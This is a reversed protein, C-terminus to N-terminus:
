KIKYRWWVTLRVEMDTKTWIELATWRWGLCPTMHVTSDSQGRTITGTVLHTWIFMFLEVLKQRVTLFTRLELLWTPGAVFFYCLLKSNLSLTWTLSQKCITSEISTCKQWLEAWKRNPQSHQCQLFNLKIQPKKTDHKVIRNRSVTM